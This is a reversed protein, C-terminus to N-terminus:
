IAVFTCCWYKIKGERFTEEHRCHKSIDLYAVAHTNNIPSLFTVSAIFVLAVLMWSYKTSHLNCCTLLRPGTKMELSILFYLLCPIAHKGSM